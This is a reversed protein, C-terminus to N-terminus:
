EKKLKKAIEYIVNVTVSNGAQKYLQFNSNVTKAKEFYSDPFGQLRFCERPTLRRVKKDRENLVKINYRGGGHTMVTPSIGSKDFIRYGIQKISESQTKPPIPFIKINSNGRIHGIIYLRERHQPVGFNASDLVQWEADYGVKDLAILIRAFDFGKEISLLNRVNEIFLWEPRNEKETERLIRIVEFFLGSQEGQLGEKAGAISINQCPFGFCWCDAKPMEEARVKTIDEAYWEGKKINHMVTYSKKAFKDIECHGLCIHGAMEMGLRFGGIGCFLDIFTIKMKKQKENM